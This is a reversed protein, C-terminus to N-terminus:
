KIKDAKKDAGNQHLIAQTVTGAESTVFTLQADLDVATFFFTKESEPFIECPFGMPFLKEEMPEWGQEMLRDGERSITMVSKASFQYQGVYRDYIRPDIRAVTRQPLPKFHDLSDWVDPLILYRGVDDVDNAENVLVVGGRGRETNFGIFSRFGGTGGNHWIYKAGFFSFTMWGLGVKLGLGAGHLPAHTRAMTASLPVPGRGMNAALFKLLDNVSSHLAGCAPLGPLEWNKVPPGVVSHGTALRAKMAPTLTIRTSDMGLPDCIRSVVLSEYNTGAKLALIHGLLGMGVNSYEFSKGPKRTLKYHSLFDYLQEVTYDSWPDDFDKPSINDPMSPLGSTHTALDILTIERGDRSPTKVSAPLYKGIPDDLKVDGREVMQQLLTTTFVKTISGIEFISDGDVPEPKGRERKGYAVVHTGKEDIVGVVIGPTRNQKDVCQQLIQKIEADSPGAQAAGLRPFVVCALLMALGTACQKTINMM